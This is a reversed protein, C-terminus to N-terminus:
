GVGERCSPCTRSGGDINSGSGDCSPCNKLVEIELDDLGNMAAQFPVSHRVLLDLERM